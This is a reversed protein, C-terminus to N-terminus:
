KTEACSYGSLKGLIEQSMGTDDVCFSYEPDSVLPVSIAFSTVKGGIMKSACVATLENKNTASSIGEFIAKDGFLTGEKQTCPGTPYATKGYGGNDDGYVVAQPILSVLSAKISADKSKNRAIGMPSDSNQMLEDYSKADTPVIIEVPMNIDSLSLRYTVVVQKNKLNLTDEPPVAYFKSEVIVPFGEKDVWVVLSSHSSIYDLYEDYEKNKIKKLYNENIFISFFEDNKSDPDELLKEYFNAMKEKNMKLEYRYLSMGNIKESTPKTVFTFTKEEDAIKTVKKLLNFFKEKQAKYEEEAKSVSLTIYNSDKASTSTATDFSVWQGKSFPLFGGFVSPINNVKVYYNTDKKILDANVKYTLDGLEGNADVNVKFDFIKDEQKKNSQISIALDVSFESPVMQLLTNLSESFTAPPKQSLYFYTPSKGNFTVQQGSIVVSTTDSTKYLKAANEITSIADSTEFSVTLAFDNGDTKVTYEYAQQSLPDIIDTKYYGKTSAIEKLTKPFVKSSYKKNNLSNFINRIATARQYDRMFKEKTEKDDTTKVVLPTLDQNRPEVVISGSIDYSASSIKGVSDLIGSFFNEEVYPPNSFPGLKETYAYVGGGLACLFFTLLLIGVWKNSHTKAQLPPTGSTAPAPTQITSSYLVSPRISDVRNNIKVPTSGGDKFFYLSAEIDAPTWKMVTLVRRMEDDSDIHNVAKLQLLYNKKDDTLM